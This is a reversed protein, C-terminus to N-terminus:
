QHLMVKKNKCRIKITDRALFFIEMEVRFDRVSNALNLMMRSHLKKLGVCIRRILGAAAAARSAMEETKSPASEM